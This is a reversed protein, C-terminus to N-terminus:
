KIFVIIISWAQGDTVHDQLIATYFLIVIQYFFCAYFPESHLAIRISFTFKDTCSVRADYYLTFVM